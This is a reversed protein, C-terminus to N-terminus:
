EQREVILKAPELLGSPSLPAQPPYPDFSTFAKQGAFGPQKDGILRNPWLNVVKVELRNDGAKLADTVDVEFPAKWLVGLDKGNVSVSALNKVAGLDLVVRAGKGAKPAKFSTAYTATGSFYRVAPDANETWSGPKVDKLTPGQPFSLNWGGDITAAVTRVKAPVAREAPGPKRFVVFVADQAGLTLPVTTRGSATKYSAPAISGTDARWIEAERGSARFSVSATRADGPNSVFYLDGDPLQRHVFRLGAGGDDLDPGVGALAAGLDPSVGTFVQDALRQFEAPDDSLSPTALPKVGVIPVGAAKLAALKRLVPVTMRKVAPDIALVRYRMGSPMAVQGDKAEVLNVLADGNVFDYAHGAPVAPLRKGYLETVNGDEGYFWAVDAVFRGQQLLLSSRGLYDIWPRAQEAWTEKRTFWQGFIALTMGPGATDVPQHVSTHLIFRNLGNAMMADATPKLKAPDYGFPSSASTFSEAAVLNQGYLHAVSASERIDADYSFPDNTVPVETWTAGMPVDASKKVQMGDGVFARGTEHSEGYRKMGRAHLADSLAGYHEDAILDGITKRFDWLFADSAAASEVVRGSLVPLWPRPDYGRRAQFKALMAETWNASGAEWSDTVLAQVGRKGMLEPGVAKEYEGLYADAYARVHEASLKDVELGTAADSAPSNQRGTLSYGYRLVMWKGAPPTWDLTGDPKLRDTLDVVDARRIVADADIEPTAEVGLGQASSWGAKDEFRQVRAAAEFAVESIKHTTPAPVGFMASAPDPKRPLFVVRFYRAKTAAFAVTQQPAGHVPLDRLRRFTKGDDSAEIRGEPATAGFEGFGGAHAAALRLARLTQPRGFDFQIWTEKDPAFSLEVPKVLDGDDLVATDIPNSATITAAAVPAQEAAPIRYAVVASDRYLTPSVGKVAAMASGGGPVTQFPGTISPPAPLPKALKRGGEVVTESWVLKKMAQQPTVWPGGTESWGPSGAIAFEFGDADATEVAHKFAARWEPTMFALPKDVIKPTNFPGAPENFSADFNQVGALGIRKMWALDKDIGDQTINGNMWHWWVRPRATNPPDAFGKALDDQRALAPSGALMAALAAGAILRHALTM